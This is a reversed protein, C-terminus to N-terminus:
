PRCSLSYVGGVGGEGIGGEVQGRPSNAWSSVMRACPFPKAQPPSEDHCVAVFPPLNGRGSVIAVGELRRFVALLNFVAGLWTRSCRCLLLAAFTLVRVLRRAGMLFLAPARPPTAETLRAYPAVRELSSAGM